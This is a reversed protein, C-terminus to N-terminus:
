LRMRVIHAQARRRWETRYAIPLPTGIIVAIQDFMLVVAHAPSRILYDLLPACVPAMTPPRPM